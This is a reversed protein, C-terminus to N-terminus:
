VLQIGADSRQRALPEHARTFYIIHLKCIAAYPSPLTDEHFPTHVLQEPPNSDAVCKPSTRQLCRAMSGARADSHRALNETSTAAKSGMCRATIASNPRSTLRAAAAWANLSSSLRAVLQAQMTCTGIGLALQSHM